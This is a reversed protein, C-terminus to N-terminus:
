KRLEDDVRQALLAVSEAAVLTSMPLRVGFVQEINAFIVAAMLSHGGLWFFSDEVGVEDLNLASQWIEVLKRETETRPAVYERSLGLESRRLVM